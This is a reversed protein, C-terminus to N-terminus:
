TQHHPLRQNFPLYQASPRPLAQNVHANIQRASSANQQPQVHQIQVLHRRHKSDHM